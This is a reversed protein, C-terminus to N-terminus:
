KLDFEFKNAAVDKTVTATLESSVPNNYKVPVLDERNAAIQESSMAVAEAESVARKPRAATISVKYAGIIAGPRGSTMLTFHGQDDTRGIALQGDGEPVFVVDAGPIAANKFKVIGDAPVLRPGRDCGIPVLSMLLLSCPMALGALRAALEAGASRTDTSRRSRALFGVEM